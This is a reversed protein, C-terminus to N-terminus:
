NLRWIYLNLALAFTIWALYPLMLLAARKSIRYFETTTALVAIWLVVLEALGYFTSRLGFFVAAWMANIVLQVAFLSLACRADSKKSKRRSWILYAAIGMLVYLVAWVLGFLWNPPNFMPKTLDAYWTGLAPIAFAM